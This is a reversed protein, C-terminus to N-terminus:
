KAEEELLRLDEDYSKEKDELLQLRQELREYVEDLSDKLRAHERSLKAAADGFGDRSAEILEANLESIRAESDEAKKELSDVEKRLSRTADAKRTLIEARRKRQEKKSLRPAASQSQKAGDEDDWGVRDLFDDYGGDFYETKEKDFVILSDAVARLMDEHHSVFVVAGKFRRLARILAETSEMDLHNTPEDLLLLNVPRAIIQALLVRAKEGGSLVNVRKLAHDGEFM